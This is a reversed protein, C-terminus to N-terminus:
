VGKVEIIGVACKLGSSPTNIGWTKSGAAGVDASRGGYVTHSVGPNSYYTNEALTVGNVALWTRSAGNIANWDNAQGTLASNASCTITGRANSQSNLITVNGVGGHNRWLTVGFGWTAATNGTVKDATVTATESVATVVCTRVTIYSQTDDSSPPTTGQTTWTVTAGTITPAINMDQGAAGGGHEASAIFTILDGIQAPIVAGTTRSSSADAYNNAAPEYFGVRTPPTIGVVVDLLLPTGDESLLSFGDEAMISM